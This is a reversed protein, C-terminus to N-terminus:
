KLIKKVLEKGTKFPGKIKKANIEKESNLTELIFLKKKIIKM